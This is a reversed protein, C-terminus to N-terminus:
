SGVYQVVFLGGGIDSAIVLDSGPFIYAGWVGNFGGSPGAYTDYLGMVRPREPNSVDLLHVGETYHAILLRDGDILVNHPISGPRGIYEAVKRPRTPDILDWGQVPMDPREDTTFLYRGDRTLWSNHTFSGGTNFQTILRIQAPDSTDLLALFGNSIASAYLIRGRSYSDHVYFDTFAGVEAPDEPDGAVDLVRMGASTGNAFLLGRVEDIWLTHASDFTKHWTQLKRPNDPDGLDVIDLGTKAETTVYAYQRYTRVERWQSRAGPILTVARPSRPDTVEVISL